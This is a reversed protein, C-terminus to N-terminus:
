FTRRTIDKEIWSTDLIFFSDDSEKVVRSIGNGDNCQESIITYSAVKVTPMNTVSDVSNNEVKASSRAAQSSNTDSSALDNLRCALGRFYRGLRVCLKGARKAFFALM